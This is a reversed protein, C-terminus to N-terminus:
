VCDDKGQIYGPIAWGMTSSIVQAVDNAMNRHSSVGPHGACGDACNPYMHSGCSTTTNIFVIRIGKSKGQEIAAKTANVPHTPSMAGVLAFVTMNPAKWWVSTLNRALQLFTATFDHPLTTPYEKWPDNTGLYVVAASPPPASSFDYTPGDDSYRLQTFLEPMQKGPNNPCVSTLCKGGVAVTDCSANFRDCVIGAWSASYDSYPGSDACFGKGGHINTAATISDGLIALRYATEHLSPHASSWFSITTHKCLICRTHLSHLSVFGCIAHHICRCVWQLLFSFQSVFSFQTNNITAAHMGENGLSELRALALCEEAFLIGM